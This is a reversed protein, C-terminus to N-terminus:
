IESIESFTGIKKIYSFQSKETNNQFPIKIEFPQGGM